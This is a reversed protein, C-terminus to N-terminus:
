QARKFTLIGNLLMFSKSTLCLLEGENRILGLALAEKTLTPYDQLLHAQIAGDTGAELITIIVSLAEPGINQSLCFNVTNEFTIQNM